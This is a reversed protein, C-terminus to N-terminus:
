RWGTAFGPAGTPDRTRLRMTLRCVLPFGAHFDGHNVVVSIDQATGTGIGSQLIVLDDDVGLGVGFRRAHDLLDRPAVRQQERVLTHGQRTLDDLAQRLKPADALRPAVRVVEIDSGAGLMADHDGSGRA